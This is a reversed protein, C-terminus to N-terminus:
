DILLSEYPIVVFVALRGIDDTYRSGQFRGRMTKSKSWNIFSRLGHGNSEVSTLIKDFGRVAEPKICTDFGKAQHFVM